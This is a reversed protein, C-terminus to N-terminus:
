RAVSVSDEPAARTLLTQYIRMTMRVRNDDAFNRRTQIKVVETANATAHIRRMKLRHSARDVHRATWDSRM